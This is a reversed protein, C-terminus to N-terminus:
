TQNHSISARLQPFLPPGVGKIPEGLVSDCAVVWEASSDLQMIRGLVQVKDMTFQASDHPNKNAISYKSLM